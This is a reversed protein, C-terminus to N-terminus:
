KSKELKEKLARKRNCSGVWSVINRKTMVEGQDRGIQSLKETKRQTENGQHKQLISSLIKYCTEWNPNRQHKRIAGTKLKLLFLAFTVIKLIYYPKECFVQRRTVSKWGQSEWYLIVTIWWFCQSGSIQLFIKNLHKRVTATKSTLEGSSAGM